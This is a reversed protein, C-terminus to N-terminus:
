GGILSMTRTDAQGSQQGFLHSKPKSAVAKLITERLAEEDKLPLPLGKDMHLCTKLYGDPTVRIRNCSACFCSGMASIFGILGKFGQVRFYTAPGNGFSWDTPTLKGLRSELLERLGENTIPQDLGAGPGIPMLEIFRVHIDRDKAIEALALLDEQGTQAQPVCNVKLSPLRSGYAAEIGKLVQGLVDSGSYYHYKAPDLSDLSVNISDLGAAALPEALKELLIGNTTLTVNDVGPLGKLERVIEPLDPRLTPEGGTIKFKRIGLSAMVRGLRSIDGFDMGSVPPPGETGYCYVCRLNCRGTISLRVYDITRGYSDLM